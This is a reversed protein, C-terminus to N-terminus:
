YPITMHIYALIFYQRIKIQCDHLYVALGGFKIGWWIKWRYPIISSPERDSLSTCFEPFVVMTKAGGGWTLKIIEM